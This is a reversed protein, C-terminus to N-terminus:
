PKGVAFYKRYWNITKKLGEDLSYKPKWGLIRRAKKSSLYQDQIEYKARKLIKYDPKRGAISYIKKVLGIVAVPTENSLNFACGALRAARLKEALLIYGDVIDRVYVYDRVLTGDSRILVPEGSLCSRM